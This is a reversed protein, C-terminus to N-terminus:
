IKDWYFETFINTTIFRQVGRAATLYEIQYLGCYISKM